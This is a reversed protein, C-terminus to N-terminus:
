AGASVAPDKSFPGATHRGVQAGMLGFTPIRAFVGISKRRRQVM